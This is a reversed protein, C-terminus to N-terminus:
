VGGSLVGGWYIYTYIGVSVLLILAVLYEKVASECFSFLM